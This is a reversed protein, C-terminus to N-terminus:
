KRSGPTNGVHTPIFRSLAPWPGGSPPTGWTHPSSGNRQALYFPIFVHERRTHPHVTRYLSIMSGVSTNGVHTPIFRDWDGHGPLEPLTGWTHPSSGFNPRWTRFADVHEGRTHPHVTPVDERARPWRTNEVHTPIFRGRGPRLRPLSDTNGVHTPIFRRHEEQREVSLLTGWTHPSSGSGIAARIKVIDHEGRTHPHVGEARIGYMNACTNGVHTPIFRPLYVRVTVVPPTGGRIHPHVVFRARITKHRLM